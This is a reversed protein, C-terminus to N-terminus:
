TDRKGREMEGNYDSDVLAKSFRLGVMSCFMFRRTSTILMIESFDEHSFFFFLIQSHKQKDSISQQFGGVNGGEFKQDWQIQGTGGRFSEIKNSVWQIIKGELWIPISRPCNCKIKINEMDGCNRWMSGYKQQSNHKTSSQNLVRLSERKYM